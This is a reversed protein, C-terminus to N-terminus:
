VALLVLVVANFTLTAVLFALKAFGCALPGLANHIALNRMLRLHSLTVETRACSQGLWVCHGRGALTAAVLLVVLLVVRLCVTAM